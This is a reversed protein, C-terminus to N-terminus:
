ASLSAPIVVVVGDASDWFEAASLLRDAKIMSPTDSKAFTAANTCLDAGAAAAVRSWEAVCAHVHGDVRTLWWIECLGAGGFAGKLFAVDGAHVVNGTPTRYSAATMFEFASPFHNRLFQMLSKKPAVVPEQLGGYWWPQKPDHLHEMTLEEMLGREFTAKTYRDRSWKKVLKHMREQPLTSQLFGHTSVYTWLHMALHHKPLWGITDYARKFASLHAIIAERLVEANVAGYKCMRLLDLVDALALFSYVQKSHAIPAPLTQLFYQLSGM